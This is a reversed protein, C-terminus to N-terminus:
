TTLKKVIEDAIKKITQNVIEHTNGNFTERLQLHADSFILDIFMTGVPKSPSESGGAKTLGTVAIVVDAKSFLKKANKAMESTVEASEPTYRDILTKPVNLIKHKEDADYCVISGLLIDGSYPTFAFASSLAGATASETFAIKLKREALLACCNLISVETM